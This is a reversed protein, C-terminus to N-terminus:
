SKLLESLIKRIQRIEPKKAVAKKFATDSFRIGSIVNLLSIDDIDVKERKAQAMRKKEAISHLSKFALKWIRQRSKESSQRLMSINSKLLDVSHRSRKPKSGLGTVMKYCDGVLAVALLDLSRYAGKTNKDPTAGIVAYAADYFLWPLYIYQAPTDDNFIREYYGPTASNKLEFILRKEHKAEWSMGHWFSLAVMAAELMDIRDRAPRGQLGPVVGVKRVYDEGYLESIARQIEKQVADNSRLDRATIPSQSNSYEAIREELMSSGLQTSGPEKTPIFRVLVRVGDLWGKQNRNDYLAEITQLGNVVQIGKIQFKNVATKEITSCAVTVGNNYLWFNRRESPDALTKEIKPRAVGGKTLLFRFNSHYLRYGCEGRIRALESAKVACAYAFTSGDLEDKLEYSEVVGIDVVGPPEALNNSVVDNLKDLDYLSVHHRQYAVRDADFSANMEDIKEYLSKKAAGAIAVILNIRRHNKVSEDYLKKLHELKATSSGKPLLGKAYMVLRKFGLDLEEAADAPFSPPRFDEGESEVLGKPSYKAQMLYFENGDVWAGDIHADGPGNGECIARASHIADEGVTPSINKICWFAFSKGLQLSSTGGYIKKATEDVVDSLISAFKAPDFSSTTSM